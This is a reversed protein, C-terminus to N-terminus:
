GGFTKTEQHDEGTPCIAGESMYSIRTADSRNIYEDGKAEAIDRPPPM